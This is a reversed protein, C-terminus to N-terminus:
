KKASNKKAQEKKRREEQEADERKEKEQTKLAPTEGPTYVTVHMHDNSDPYMFFLVVKQSAATPDTEALRRYDAYSIVGKSTLAAQFREQPKLVEGDDFKIEQRIHKVDSKYDSQNGSPSQFQHRHGEKRTGGDDVYKSPEIPIYVNLNAHDAGKIEETGRRQDVGIIIPLGFEYLGPPLAEIITEVGEMVRTAQKKFEAWAENTMPSPANYEQVKETVPNGKADTIVSGDKRTRPKAVVEPSIFKLLITHGEYRGIDAASGVGQVDRGLADKMGREANPLPRGHNGRNIGPKRMLSLIYFEGNGKETDGVAPPLYPKVLADYLRLTEATLCTNFPEKIEGKKGTSSRPFLYSGAVALEIVQNDDKGEQLELWKNEYAKLLNKGVRINEVILPHLTSGDPAWIDEMKFPTKGLPDMAKYFPALARDYEGSEYNSGKPDHAVAHIGTKGALSKWVDFGKSPDKLAEADPTGDAPNGLHEKWLSLRLNKTFGDPAKKDIVAVCLESNLTLSKRTLSLSGVSAWSDDVLVVGSGCHIPKGDTTQLHYIAFNASKGPGKDALTRVMQMAQTKWYAYVPALLEPVKPVVVIVRLDPKAALRKGIWSAVTLSVFLPDEIYIYQEANGIAKQLAGQATFDGKPAFKFITKDAGDKYALTRLIQIDHDVPAAPKTKPPELQEKQSNNWRQRFNKDLEGAAPGEVKLTVDHWGRVPVGSHATTDLRSESSLEVGGCYATLQGGRSVVILRQNHIGTLGPLRGDKGVNKFGATAFIKTHNVVKNTDDKGKQKSPHGSMLLRVDVKKRAAGKLMNLLTSTPDTALLQTNPDIIPGTIFIYDGSAGADGLAKLDGHLAGYFKEADVLAEAKGQTAAELDGAAAGRGFKSLSKEADKDTLFWKDLDLAM